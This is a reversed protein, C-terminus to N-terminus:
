STPEIVTYPVGQRPQAMWDAVTERWTLYHETEKHAAAGAKTKYAEYLLFHTSDQPDQLVDFRLNEPEQVSNKHNIRTAEIFDAVNEPKVYVHVCTVEM